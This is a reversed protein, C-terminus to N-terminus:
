TPQVPLKASQCIHFWGADDSQEEGKRPPKERKERKPRKMRLPEGFIVAALQIFKNNYSHSLTPKLGHHKLLRLAVQAAHRKAPSVSKKHWRKYPQQAARARNIWHEVLWRGDLEDEQAVSLKLRRHLAISIPERIEHPLDTDNLVNEVEILARELRKAAQRHEKTYAGYRGSRMRWEITSWDGQPSECYAEIEQKIKPEDVSAEADRIINTAHRVREAQTLAM